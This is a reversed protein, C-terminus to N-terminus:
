RLSTVAAVVREIMEETMGAWLPLRALTASVRDTVELPLPSRGFHRGAPSSHLPVYHFVAHVGRNRLHGLLRDREAETPAALSFLHAPHERDSPVHPLAFGAGAAWGALGEAYADWVARRQFQIQDRRELQGWLFAALLDSPLWSSGLDVWTYKDVEGRFFKSRNTGKERLIEAREVLEARNLQLAGGEGSSVNKTEHFSLASLEGFSGLPRGRYSGFLGHANDEILAVDHQAAWACIENMECAVGGYHVVIVARTRETLLEPLLREDLCYTDPRIDAFVPTAGRMAVVAATSVFTYSPVIVEDGPSLDLLHCAMELAHTCSSTLLTRETRTAASLTEECRATFPGAGSVHGGLVAARVHELENGAALVRNFPVPDGTV